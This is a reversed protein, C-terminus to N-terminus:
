SEEKEEETDKEGLYDKIDESESKLKLAQKKKQYAQEALDANEKSINKMIDKPTDEVQDKFLDDALKEVSKSKKLMPIVIIFVLAAVVVMLVLVPPAILGLLQYM